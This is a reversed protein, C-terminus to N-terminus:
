ATNENVAVIRTCQHEDASPDSLNQVLVTAIPVVHAILSTESEDVPPYQLVLVQVENLFGVMMPINGATQPVAIGHVVLTPARAMTPAVATNRVVTMSTRVVTPTHATERTSDTPALAVAPAQAATAILALAASHEQDLEDM